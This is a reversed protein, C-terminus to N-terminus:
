PTDECSRPGTLSPQGSREIFAPLLCAEVNGDPDIELRAVGTTASADSLRPWVFNGLTWYVPVGDVYELAGLRHPHHAFIADAGAAIMAAARDRDDQRPESEGEVGWHITVFVLDATEDAARVAAVMQEIDDGSAMGPRSDTALWSDGPVVGGMGLVAVTWGGVEIIEPTTASELDAGVGVPRLGALRAQLVGDLMAQTGFDQSHNNALNVVDVGNARAVALASPPCRFTFTKDLPTGLTTPACELNVLTLDDSEFLGDLREFAYDYGVDRFQVIYDPDLAVDGAAHIVLNRKEPIGAGPATTTTTDRAFPETAPTVPTTSEIFPFTTTSTEAGVSEGPEATGIDVAGFVFSGLLLGTVIVTGARARRSTRM